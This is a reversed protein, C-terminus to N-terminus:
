KVEKKLENIEKINARISTAYALIKKLETKNSQLLVSLFQQGRSIEVEKPNNRNFKSNKIPKKQNKNM